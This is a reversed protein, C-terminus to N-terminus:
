RKIYESFPIPKFGAYKRSVNVCALCLAVQAKSLNDFDMFRRGIPPADTYIKIIPSTDDEEMTDFVLAPITCEIPPQTLSPSITSPDVARAWSCWHSSSREWRLPTKGMIRVEVLPIARAAYPAVDEIYKDMTISPIVGRLGKWRQMQITVAGMLYQESRKWQAYANGPILTHCIFDALSKDTMSPDDYITDALVNRKWDDLPHELIDRYVARADDGLM